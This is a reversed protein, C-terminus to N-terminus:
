GEHRVGRAALVRSYLSDASQWKVTVPKRRDRLSFLTVALAVAIVLLMM